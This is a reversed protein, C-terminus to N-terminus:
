AKKFVLGYRKEGPSFKSALKFGEKEILAQADAEPLRDWDAIILTGNNKMIRKAEALAAKKDHVQSLASSILVANAAGEVLHTGQPEEFDACVVDVNNFGQEEAMHRLRILLDPNLDVALVKGEKGLFKALALAYHGAGSGFDAVIQGPLIGFESVQKDINM